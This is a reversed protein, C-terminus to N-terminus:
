KKLMQYFLEEGKAFIKHEDYPIHQTFLLYVTKHAPDCRFTTTAAGNWGYVAPYEKADVGAPPLAVQVGLGFGDRESFQHHKVALSALENSTMMKVTEPKLIVAGDLNGGNLLMQAFRAYDSSTSFLGAGGASIGRGPEEYVGIIADTTVLAKEASTYKHLRAMRARKEPVVDFSTDKMKLPSFVHQALFAEFEQGSVVEILRGLIDDSICYCFATGPQQILPLKGVKEVMEQLSKSHWLDAKKYLEQVPHDSFLDYTHGSTHALLHRITIPREAPVTQPADATGGTWVVPKALEPLYKGIPDDLKLKGQEMLILVGVSTIPKTMSYIRFITDKEMPLKKEVDRLGVVTWDVIKGDKIIMTQVGCHKGEDVFKKVGDRFATLAETKIGAAEPTTRPFPGEIPAEAFLGHTTVIGSLFASIIWHRRTNKMMCGIILLPQLNALCLIRTM